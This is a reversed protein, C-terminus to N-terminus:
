YRKNTLKSVHNCIMNWIEYENKDPYRKVYIDKYNLYMTKVHQPVNEVEKDISFRDIDMM